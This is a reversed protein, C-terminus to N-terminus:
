GVRRRRTPEGLEAPLVPTFGVLDAAEDVTMADDVEPPPPADETAAPGREVIVGAFGFWDSVAARVPPTALLAVLLALVAVAVRRPWPQLWAVARSGSTSWNSSWSTPPRSVPTPQTAVRELVTTALATSPRPQPLERALRDLDRVLLEHDTM